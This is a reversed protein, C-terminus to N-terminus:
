VVGRFYHGKTFCGPRLGMLAAVNEQGPEYGTPDALFHELERRYIKTVKAVYGHDERKLELRLSAPGLRLIQALHEILNLEKSNFIHMRCEQDTEVPFVFNMRDKLGFTKRQCPRTCGEPKGGGLLSGVACYESVMLPLVGHVVLEFALSRRLKFGELQALSLEPSLAAMGVGHRDLALLASDNFANLTYDTYVTLGQYGKAVALSGLDAAQVTEAGAQLAKELYGTLYKLRHEHVLRPLRIVPIVGRARCYDIGRALEDRGIAPKSRYQDGGFYIIDAGAGAAKELSFMDGVSVALQCKRKVPPHSESAFREFRRQVEKRAITPRNTEQRTSIVGEVAQRRAENIEKVPVILNGQLDLEVKNLAFPTNGLRDLQQVLYERSLPRKVAEELVAGTLAEGRNGDPDLCVIQLPEGLRGSLLFDLPIRRSLKGEQYSQRARSVLKEDHTKFIRDGQSVPGPLEIWVQQGAGASEIEGGQDWIRNVYVGERGKKVWVEIGDGLSLETELKLLVRGTGKDYQQVRGLMVGRNNPRKYSMLESGPRELLYGPTFDRNFIQALEGHEERSGKSEAEALRDLVQRYNRIVTAVYEPRKMRGEVKLSSIGAGALDGLYDLLNLDRPSLLHEGVEIGPAKAGSDLDVLEYTLRCPQACRGRNGSRGGIMSSMLCQGSYCVCLAGHIFVELDAGTAQFIQTMDQLSIERALVVRTFGLDQALKVGPSNLIAMQTSAHVPLEPLVQRVLYAVGLDQLIVADAGSSYLYHLYDVLEPLETNAIVINVTVYVKVGRLHAYTIAEQLEERSFNAASARANFARGGLYVADAGNEVAARM